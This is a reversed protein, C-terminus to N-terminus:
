RPPLIVADIVHIIGNTTEIDSAIVNAGNVTLRGNSIRIRVDDGQLTAAVGAEVADDAYIRGSIVHYKLIAQLTSRNEPKLLEQVTGAPLAAFAEDTPAFVTFPGDGRLAGVLRAADLAAALTTFSGAEGATALIDETAPMIVRDIAHVVGNTAEVDTAIVRADDVFVQGNRVDIDVRQGGATQASTVKVVQTSAVEAPIVHYLLISQLLAKNEPELLHAVTGAPLAEFAEDTPALVTFPGEGSLVDALGAAQVAAVLTTFSGARQAVEIINGTRHNDMSALTVTSTASCESATQVSCQGSNAEAKRATTSYQCQATANFALGALLSVAAVRILAM